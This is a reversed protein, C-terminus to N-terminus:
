AGSGHCTEGALARNVLEQLERVRAVSPAKGGLVCVAAAHSSDLHLTHCSVADIPRGGQSLRVDGGPDIESTVEHFPLGVGVGLAKSYAEKVAWRTFFFRPADSEALRDLAERESGSLVKDILDAVRDRIREVDVGVVASGTACVVWDGSHSLNFQVDRHSELLPKGNEGAGFVLGSRPAVGREVIVERLLLEAVLSRGADIPRRYRLVRTRREPSVVKLLATFVPDTIPEVLRVADVQIGLEM